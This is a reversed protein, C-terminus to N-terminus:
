KLVWLKGSKEMERIRQTDYELARPDQNALFIGGPSDFLNSTPLLQQGININWFATTYSSLTEAWKMGPIDVIIGKDYNILSVAKSHKYYVPPSQTRQHFREPDIAADVLLDLQSVNSFFQVNRPAKAGHLRAGVEILVPGHEDVMIEFHAAGFHIGLANMVNVAYEIVDKVEKESPHIFLEESYVIAGSPLIQKKYLSTNTIYHTKNLSVSDVVYEKGKIFQQVLVYENRNGLADCKGVIDSIAQEIEAYTQCFKVSDTGASSLPKIVMTSSLNHELWPKLEEFSSVKIQSISRLGAEAVGEQMLYKDRLCLLTNPDCCPLGLHHALTNALLVGSEAGPVVAQCGYENIKNVLKDFNSITYPLEKIFNDKNYSAAYVAPINVGSKICISSFGRSYFEGALYQGSSYPDVIAVTKMPYEM